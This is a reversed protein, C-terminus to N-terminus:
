KDLERRKLRNDMWATYLHILGVVLRVLLLVGAGAGVMPVIGDMGLGVPVGAAIAVAGLDLSWSKM